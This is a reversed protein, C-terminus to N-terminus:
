VRKRRIIKRVMPRAVNVAREDKKLLEYAALTEEMRWRLEDLRVNVMSIGDGSVINISIIQRLLSDFEVELDPLGGIGARIKAYMAYQIASQWRKTRRELASLDSQLEVIQMKQEDKIKTITEM